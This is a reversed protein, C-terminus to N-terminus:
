RKTEMHLRRKLERLVQSFEYADLKLRQQFYKARVEELRPHDPMVFECRHPVDTPVIQLIPLGLAVSIAASVYLDSEIHHTQATPTPLTKTSM